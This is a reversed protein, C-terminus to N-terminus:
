WMFAGFVHRATSAFTGESLRSAAIAHCWCSRRAGLSPAILGDWAIRGRDWIRDDGAPRSRPRRAEDVPPQRSDQRHRPQRHRVAAPNTGHCGPRCRWILL